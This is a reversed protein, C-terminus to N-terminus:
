SEAPQLLAPVLMEFQMRRATELVAARDGATRARARAIVLDAWPLPEQRTYAELAQAHHLAGDRDGTRLSVETALLRFELHNHSVCGRALLAEGEDLLRRLALPEDTAMAMAGLAWPGCYTPAAARALEVADQLVARADERRQLGNLALGNLALAEAEFRRAGLERALEVSRASCELAVAYRARYVELSGRINSALLEARLDGLRRATAAAATAIEIAGAFDGAYAQTVALMPVYSLRLSTLRHQDCLDVCARFHAHATRMRGRQYQADGLGGLARAIDEPSGSQGAFELAQEHAALCEDLEGRPFHLNGRLTWLRALQRPDAEALAAQEAHRLADLAEEYRDMVRFSTALGLGARAREANTAALDIAVRFAAVADETRGKGLKIEGLMASAAFQDRGETALERARGVLQEARDFRCAAQEREAAELYAAAARPDEAGALHHAHLAADRGEFWLSARRHLDRRTSRLLSENVVTRILAHSFTCESGACALLGEREQQEVSCAPDGLVHRLAEVDFRQGLVAAAQLVHRAEAPLREVRALLLARVSGPLAAQGSGAARLLQELFFPHGGATALCQEVLEPSVEAHQAALDRAEDDALPALDLATVPCGRARARWAASIPDGDARTSIALLVPLSATAAAFDALDGLEAPEAWHADEVVVLQPQRSAARQLLGHLLRARARDRAADDMASLVAIADPLPALGLLDAAAVADGTALWGDAVAREVASRRQGASAGTPLGLLRAALAPTPRDGAAQGFDLVSIVHVAAGAARAQAGFAALLSSKGIGPEGRVVVARGRRASVARDLFMALMALEPRRGVLPTVVPWEQAERARRVAQGATPDAAAVPELEFRDSVQLAVDASVVIGQSSARALAQAQPLPSGALPFPREPGAPLVLGRAIGAALRPSTKGAPASAVLELAARVAREAENGTLAGLGFVAVVEDLGAPDAVGGFRAVTDGIRRELAARAARAAEPDQDQQGAAQGLRAVLVVAERLTMAETRAPPPSPDPSDSAPEIVPETTATGRRRRLIDRYLADTAPEPAVDLDRRLAEVCARYQRLADTHRGLRALCEMLERQARENAPELMVLRELLQTAGPLDGATLRRSAAREIAQLLERRLERRREELWQEFAASRAQFGELLTSSHCEIATELADVSGDRLRARCEQVDCTVLTADLALTATDGVIAEGAEQPLARRLSALAQRLSSRALEPDSDDWLLAALFDRRHVAGPQLALCALLATAKRSPLRVERGTATRVRMGGLLQIHLQTV